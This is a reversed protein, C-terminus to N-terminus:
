KEIEVESEIQILVDQSLLDFGDIETTISDRKYSVIEGVKVEMPVGKLGPGIHRVIGKLPTNGHESMGLPIIIGSKTVSEKKESELREVLLLLSKLKYNM